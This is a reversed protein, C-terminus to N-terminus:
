AKSAIDAIFKAVFEYVPMAGLDVVGLVCQLQSKCLLYGHIKLTITQNRLDTASRLDQKKLKKAVDARDNANSLITAFM